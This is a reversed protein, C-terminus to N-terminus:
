LSFIYNFFEFFLSDLIVGFFIAMAFVVWWVIQSLKWAEQRTPWSVRRLEGMTERFFRSIANPQKKVQKAASKSPV